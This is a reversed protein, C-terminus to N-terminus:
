KKNEGRWERLRAYFTTHKLGTLRLVEKINIEGKEWRNVAEEFNDPIEKAPRGFKIGRAKASAIGEAQRTKINVRETHAVYSFLSLVLDAILTGLLDKHTRTDLLPMDLVVIDVGKEQTLVQWWKIIDKYNRGLRDISPLYLLDQPQLQAVMAQWAPRVFDKGSVKDVYIQGSPIHLSTFADLQRGENQDVSSVRCYAYTKM